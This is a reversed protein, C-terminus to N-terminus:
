IYRDTLYGFAVMSLAAIAGSYLSYFLSEGGYVPVGTILTFGIMHVPLYVLLCFVTFMLKLWWQSKIYNKKLLVLFVAVIVILWMLSIVLLLWTSQLIDLRAYANIRNVLIFVPNVMLVPIAPILSILAYIISRITFTYKM